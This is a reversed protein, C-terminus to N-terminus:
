TLLEEIQANTLNLTGPQDSDLLPAKVRRGVKGNESRIENEVAKRILAKLSTGRQAALAKLDRFVPDPLDITTRMFAYECM